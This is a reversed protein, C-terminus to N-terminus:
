LIGLCPWGLRDDGMVADHEILDTRFVADHLLLVVLQFAAANGPLDQQKGASLAARHDLLIAQIM